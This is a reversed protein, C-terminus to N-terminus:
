SRVLELSDAKGGALAYRVADHWRDAIAKNAPSNDIGTALDNLLQRLEKSDIRLCLQEVLCLMVRYAQNDTLSVPRTIGATSQIAEQWDEEMAPDAPTGEGTLSMDGVLLALDDLKSVEFYIGKLFRYAAAYAQDITMATMLAESAGKLPLYGLAPTILTHRNTLVVM